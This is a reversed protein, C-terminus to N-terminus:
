ATPKPDVTPATPQPTATAVTPPTVPAQAIAGVAEDTQARPTFALRFMVPPADNYRATVNLQRLLEDPALNAIQAANFGAKPLSLVSVRGSGGVISKYMKTLDTGPDIDHKQLFAIVAAVHQEVFAAPDISAQQACFKNRRQLYDQDVYELSFQAVHLKRLGDPTTATHPDFHQLETHLTLTSLGPARLVARADLAGSDADYRLDLHESPKGPNLGMRQYDALSFHSVVGCGQTEFPVLSAPSIWGDLAVPLGAAPWRPGVIDVGLTPPLRNDGAVWRKLLWFPGPTALTLREAAYADRPHGVPTLSVQTLEISGNLGASIGEYRLQAVPALQATARTAEQRVAYELLLKLGGTLLLALLVLNRLLRWM